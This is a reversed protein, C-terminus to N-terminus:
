EDKQRWEALQERVKEARPDEIEERIKLSAEACEIARAREGLKDLSLSMNWLAAGEGRRDGIERDIVLAQEYFEIAKRTEGLDAYANGLNGLDAGEYDRKKLRRAAALQCNLWRIQERPHQRLDLVYVGANPYELCLEAAEDDREALSEAWEWGAEINAREGDFLAVGRKVGEGGQLYLEKAQELTQCYHRAHRRKAADREEESLRGDAFIRALDHLSYRSSAEDYEILSYTLLDGLGENVGDAEMEWMAAAASEDFTKAFVALRLWRKRSEEDLLECSENLVVEVAKLHSLRQKADRLRRAYDAPSLNRREAIASAAVRLALPLRGCLAAIEDACDGIRKAIRLLLERADEMPLADLDRDYLGPLTFHQRSTVILVCGAPPLLPEVQRRDKANDMVLLARKEHLLSRYIASLEDEGDPLKALPHYARIVHAMADAASLPNASVGGLDLFFQADPYRDKIIESLKLALATKGVGGQGRLGSIAVGRHFNALLDQIEEARGTFDQPPAPLQHLPSLERTQPAQITIVNENGTVLISDEVKATSINRESQPKEESPDDTM